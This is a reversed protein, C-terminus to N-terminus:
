TQGNPSGAAVSRAFAAVREFIAPADNDLTAVHYSDTLRVLEKRGTGVRAAVRRANSPDVTHDEDSSFLLLPSAMSPLDADVVRLFRGLEAVAKMPLRESCMEDQGPKKIDNRTATVSRVFPALLPAFRLDPRHVMPNIAVVGLFRAPYRAALHLIMAAGVSLGAGVLGSTRSALDAVADTTTEEWEPWTHEGLDRWPTGHGPWRPGVVSFGHAALWEGM